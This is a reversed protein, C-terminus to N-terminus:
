PITTRLSGALTVTIGQLAKTDNTVREFNHSDLPGLARLHISIFIPATVYYSCCNDEIKTCQKRKSKTVTLTIPPSKKQTQHTNGGETDHKDRIIRWFM